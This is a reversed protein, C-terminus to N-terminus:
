DRREAELERELEEVRRELEAVRDDSGSFKRYGLIGGALLVLPVGFLFLLLLLLVLLEPGGPLGFQLPIM